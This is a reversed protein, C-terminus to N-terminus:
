YLKYPKMNHLCKFAIFLKKHSRYGCVEKQKKLLDSQHGSKVQWVSIATAISIFLVLMLVKINTSRIEHSLAENKLKENKLKEDKLKENKMKENSITINKLKEAENQLKLQNIVKERKRSKKHCAKIDYQLNRNRFKLNELKTGPFNPSTESDDDTSSPRITEWHVSIM